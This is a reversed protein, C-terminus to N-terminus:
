VRPKSGGFGRGPKTTFNAKSMVKEMVGGCQCMIVIPPVIAGGEITTGFMEVTSLLKTTENSCKNCIFDFLPAM